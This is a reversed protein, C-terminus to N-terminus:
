RFVYDLAIGAFVACGFWNNALFAAFCRTPERTRIQKLQQVALLAAVLLGAAYWRGLGTM